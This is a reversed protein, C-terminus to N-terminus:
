RDSLVDWDSHPTVVLHDIRRGDHLSARQSSRVQARKYEDVAVSSSVLRERARVLPQFDGRIKGVRPRYKLVAITMCM